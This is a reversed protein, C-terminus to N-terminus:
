HSCDFMDELTVLICNYESATEQVKECFGSKSFLIYYKDTYRSFVTSHEILDEMVKKELLENRFKCEGFLAKKQDDNIGVIDIEMERHLVSNNGWWRGLQYLKFPLRNQLNQKYLYQKCMDEFISGMFNSITSKIRNDYVVEADGTEIMFLHSPIYRYWFCFMHDSLSYLTKKRNSEETIASEKKVIGLSILIKLCASLNATDMHTKTSIENLRSAGTAIAEIIANYNAPERLEQKLLNYPEEYLYGNPKLFLEIINEKLTLSEDILELYKPVGGTIGYVISKEENTYHPVFKSSEWYDLPFIKFQATRRGYLPSQYGLVQNEMFSMSSGCLILMMDTKSFFNDIYSQLVSSISREASALYPYEDIVFILKQKQAIDVIKEFANEYSPFPPLSSMAPLLTNWISTSLLELNRQSNSEIATFFIATKGKIFEQILKSKGVRRRGYIVPFQFSTKQYLKQLENLEYDRGIFM